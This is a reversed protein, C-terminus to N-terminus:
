ACYIHLKAEKIIFKHVPGNFPINVYSGKTASHKIERTIVEIQGDIIYFAEQFKAHSHPPILMHVLAYAGHTQESGIIICYTDGVVSLSPGEQAAVTTISNNTNEMNKVDHDSYNILSTQNLNTMKM